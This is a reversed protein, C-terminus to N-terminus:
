AILPRQLPRGHGLPVQGWGYVLPAAVRCNRQDATPPRARTSNQAASGPLPKLEQDSPVIVRAGRSSSVGPRGRNSCVSCGSRRRYLFLPTAGFSSEGVKSPSCTYEVPMMAGRSRDELRRTLLQDAHLGHRHAAVQSRRLCLGMPAGATPCRCREPVGLPERPQATAPRV